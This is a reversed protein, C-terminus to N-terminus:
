IQGVPQPWNPPPRDIDVMGDWEGDTDGLGVEVLM